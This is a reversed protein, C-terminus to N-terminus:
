ICSHNTYQRCIGWHQLITEEGHSIMYKSILGCQKGNTHNNVLKFDFAMRTKEINETNVLDSGGVWRMILIECIITV